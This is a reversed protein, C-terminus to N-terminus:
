SSLPVPAHEAGSRHGLCPCPHEGDHSLLHAERRRDGVRAKPERAELPDPVGPANSTARPCDRGGEEGLRHPLPVTPARESAAATARAGHTRAKVLSHGPRHTDARAAHGHTLATRRDSTTGPRDSPEHGRDRGSGTRDQRCYWPVRDSQEHGKDRGSGTRVPKRHHGTRRDTHEQPGTQTRTGEQKKLGKVGLREHHASTHIVRSRCM